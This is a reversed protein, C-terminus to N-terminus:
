AFWRVGSSRNCATREANIASPYGYKSANAVADGRTAFQTASYALIRGPAQEFQWHWAGESGLYFLWREGAAVAHDSELSKM